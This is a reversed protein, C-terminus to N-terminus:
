LSRGSGQLWAENHEIRGFEVRRVVDQDDLAGIRATDDRRHGAIEIVVVNRDDLRVLEIIGLAVDEIHADHEFLGSGLHRRHGGQAITELRDGMAEGHIPFDEVQRDLGLHQDGHRFEAVAEVFQQVAPAGAQQRDIDGADHRVVFIHAGEDFPVLQGVDVQRHSLVLGFLFALEELQDVVVIDIQDHQRTVHM